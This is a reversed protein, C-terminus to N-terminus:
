RRRYIMAAQLTRGLAGFDIPARMCDFGGRSLLERALEENRNATVTALGPKAELGALGPEDGLVVEDAELRVAVRHGEPEDALRDLDRAAAPPQVDGMASVEHGLM